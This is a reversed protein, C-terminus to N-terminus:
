NKIWLKLNALSPCYSLMTPPSRGYLVEFPTAKLPLTTVLTTVTSWGFCGNFGAVIITVQLAIYICRSLVISLRQKDTV